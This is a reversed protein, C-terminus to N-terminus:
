GANASKFTGHFSRKEGLRNIKTLLELQTQLQRYCNKCVPQPKDWMFELIKSPNPSFCNNCYRKYCYCCQKWNFFGLSTECGVDCLFSLYSFILFFLFSTTYERTEREERVQNQVNRQKSNIQNESLTKPKKM